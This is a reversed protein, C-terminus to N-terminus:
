PSLTALGTHKGVKYIAGDTVPLPQVSMPRVPSFDPDSVAHHTTSCGVVLLNIGLVSLVSCLKGLMRQPQRNIQLINFHTTM